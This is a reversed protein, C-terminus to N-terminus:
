NSVVSSSGGILSKERDLNTAGGSTDVTKTESIDAILDRDGSEDTPRNPKLNDSTLVKRVLIM